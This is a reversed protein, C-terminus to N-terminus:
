KTTQASRQPQLSRWRLDGAFWAWIAEAPWFGLVLFAVAGFPVLFITAFLFILFSAGLAEYISASETKPVGRFLMLSIPICSVSTAILPVDFLFAPAGPGAKHGSAALRTISLIQWLRFIVIRAVLVKWIFEGKSAVPALRPWAFLGPRAAQTGAVIGILIAVFVSFYSYYSVASQIDGPYYNPGYQHLGLIYDQQGTKASLLRFCFQWAVSTLIGAVIAGIIFLPQVHFPKSPGPDADGFRAMARLFALFLLIVALQLYAGGNLLLAWGTFKQGTSQIFWYLIQVPSALLLYLALTLFRRPDREIPNV